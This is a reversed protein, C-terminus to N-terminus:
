SERRPSGSGAIAEMMPASSPAMRPKSSPGSEIRRPERSPLASRALRAQLCVQGARLRPGPTGAMAQSSSAAARAEVKCPTHCAGPEGSRLTSFARITRTWQWIMPALTKMSSSSKSGTRAAMLQAISEASRIREMLMDWHRSTYSILTRLISVCRASTARIKWDWICGPRAAMPQSTSAMETPSTEVSPQRVWALMFLIPIPHRSPLPALRPGSSFAM